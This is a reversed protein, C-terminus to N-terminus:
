KCQHFVLISWTWLLYRSHQKLIALLNTLIAIFFYTKGHFILMNVGSKHMEWRKRTCTPWFIHYPLCEVKNLFANGIFIIEHVSKSWSFKSLTFSAKFYDYQWRRTRKVIKTGPSIINYWVDLMCIINYM